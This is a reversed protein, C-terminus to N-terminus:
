YSLIDLDIEPLEVKPLLTDEFIYEITKGKRKTVANPRLANNIKLIAIPEKLKLDSSIHLLGRERLEKAYVGLKWSINTDPLIVFPENILRDMYYEIIKPVPKHRSAKLPFTYM